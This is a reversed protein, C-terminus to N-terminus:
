ELPLYVETKVPLDMTAIRKVNLNLSQMLMQFAGIPDTLEESTSQFGDLVDEQTESLEGALDYVADVLHNLSMGENIFVLQERVAEWRDASVKSCKALRQRARKTNLEVSYSSGYEILEGLLEDTVDVGISSLVQQMKDSKLQEARWSWEATDEYCSMFFDKPSRIKKVTKGEPLETKLAQIFEIISKSENFVLKHNDPRSDYVAHPNSTICLSGDGLNCAAEYVFTANGKDLDSAAEYIAVLVQDKFNWLSVQIAACGHCVLYYGVNNAGVKKLAREMFDLREREVWEDKNSSELDMDLSPLVTMAKSLDSNSQKKLFRYIKWGFYLAVALIIIFLVGLVKLFM